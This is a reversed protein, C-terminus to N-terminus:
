RSCVALSGQCLKRSDQHQPATGEPRRRRCPQDVGGCRRNRAGGRRGTRVADSSTEGRKTLPLLSPPHMCTSCARACLPSQALPGQRCAARSRRGSWGEAVEGYSGKMRCRRGGKRSVSTPNQAIRSPLAPSTPGGTSFCGIVGITACRLLMISTLGVAEHAVWRLTRTQLLRVSARTCSPRLKAIPRDGHSLVHLYWGFGSAEEARKPQRRTSDAAPFRSRPAVNTAARFICM